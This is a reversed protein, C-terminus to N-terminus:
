SKLGNGNVSIEDNQKPIFARLSDWCIRSSVSYRKRIYRATHLPNVSCSTYSNANRTAGFCRMIQGKWIWRFEYNCKLINYRVYSRADDRGVIFWWQTRDEVPQSWPDLLQEETLNIDFDTDDPIIVYSGIPYHTKPRFQIWFDVADKLISPTTHVQYKVDEFKWGDRTLIYVRKYNPDRTFTRDIIVDSQNKKVEALNRGHRQLYKKYDELKM